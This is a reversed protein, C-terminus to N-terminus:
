LSQQRMSDTYCIISQELALKGSIEKTKGNVVVVFVDVLWELMDMIILRQGCCGGGM